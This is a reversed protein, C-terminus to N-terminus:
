TVKESARIPSIYIIGVANRHRFNITETKKTVNQSTINHHSYVTVLGTM